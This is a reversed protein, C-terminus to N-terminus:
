NFLMELRKKIAMDISEAIVGIPIISIITWNLEPEFQAEFEVLLKTEDLNVQITETLTEVVICGGKDQQTNLHTQYTPTKYTDTRRKIPLQKGSLRQLLCM